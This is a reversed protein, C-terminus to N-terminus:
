TITEFHLGDNNAILIQGRDNHWEDLVYRTAIKGSSLTHSHTATRHTHGHILIEIQHREFYSIVEADNVDTIELSKDQTAERSQQRMEQAM